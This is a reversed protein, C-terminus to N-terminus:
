PRISIPDAGITGALEALYAGSAVRSLQARAAALRDQWDFTELAKV